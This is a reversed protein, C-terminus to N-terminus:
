RFYVSGDGIDLILEGKSTFSYKKADSLMKTFQTEQSGDCFMLTSFIEDFIINNNKTSYKGGVKNCDTSASFNGNTEFTLTFKKGSSPKVIENGNYDTSIWEWTKMGLTMKSTDAEGEFNQVVEGFQLTNPDLKLYLSKGVSPPTAFSESPNRDAYNIVIINGDKLETTQPAIRDGIFVAETGVVGTEKNLQAVLYYFTGSGGTTQTILFAVDERSDGDFDGRVDNGFYRTETISASGPVPPIISVGDKLKIESGNILYTGNYQSYISSNKTNNSEKKMFAYVTLSILIVIVLLSILYNKKM